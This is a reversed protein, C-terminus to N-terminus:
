VARCGTFANAGFGIAREFGDRGSPNCLAYDASLGQVEGDGNIGLLLTGGNCNLLGVLKKLFATTVDACREATQPDTLLTRAFELSEHEPQRLLAHIEGLERGEKRFDAVSHSRARPISGRIGFVAGNHINGLVLEYQGPKRVFQAECNIPTAAQGPPGFLYRVLTLHRPPRIGRFRITVRLIRTDEFVPVIMDFALVEQSAISNDSFHQTTRPLQKYDAIFRREYERGPGFPYITRAIPLVLATRPFPAMTAIPVVAAPLSQSPEVLDTVMCRFSRYDPISLPFHSFDVLQAPARGVSFVHNRVFQAKLTSDFTVIREDFRNSIPRQSRSFSHVLAALLKPFDYM